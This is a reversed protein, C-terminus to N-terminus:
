RARAAFAARVARAITDRDIVPGTLRSVLEDTTAAAIEELAGLAATRAQAIRQEAEALQTDLRANLVAAQADAAAKAAAVAAAIEAQAGAHAERIARTMQDVAADANAKAGRAAELDAAIVVSRQDLVEAVRPLGWRSLLLYLAGFILAAWVVQSTTLPNAFDIQPMGNARAAVPLLLLWAALPLPKM